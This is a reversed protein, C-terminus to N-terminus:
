LEPITAASHTPISGRWVVFTQYIFLILFCSYLPMVPFLYREFDNAWWTAHLFAFLIMRLLITAALLFLAAVLPDGVRFQRFRFVTMLGAALGAVSLCIVLFPYYSGIVNEMTGSWGGPVYVLENSDLSVRRYSARHRIMEDYLAREWPLLIADEREIIKHHPRVFLGAMSLLSQPTYRANAIAGPDLFSSLVLRSPVEGKDCARNIEKAVRRYFHNASVATEHIGQSNAASRFAWVFWAGGIEQV